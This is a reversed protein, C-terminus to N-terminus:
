LIRVPSAGCSLVQKLVNQMAKGEKSGRVREENRQIKDRLFGSSGLVTTVSLLSGTQTM